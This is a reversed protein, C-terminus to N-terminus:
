AQAEQADTGEELDEELLPEVKGVQTVTVPVKMTVAVNVVELNAVCPEGVGVSFDLYTILGIPNGDDGRLRVETGEWTGDGVIELTATQGPEIM